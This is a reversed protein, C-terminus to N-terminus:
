QADGNRSHFPSTMCGEFWLPVCDTEIIATENRFFFIVDQSSSDSVTLIDTHSFGYRHLLMILHDKLEDLNQTIQMTARDGILSGSRVSISYVTLPQNRAEAEAM